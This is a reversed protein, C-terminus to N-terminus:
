FRRRVVNTAVVPTFAEWAADKERQVSLYIVAYVEDIEKKLNEANVLPRGPRKPRTPMVKDTQKKLSAVKVLPSGKPGSPRDSAKDEDLKASPVKFNMTVPLAKASAAQLAGKKEELKDLDYSYNYLLQDKGGEDSDKGYLTVLAKVEDEKTGALWRLEDREISVKFQINVMAFGAAKKIDMKPETITAM